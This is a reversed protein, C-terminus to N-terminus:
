LQRLLLARAHKNIAKNTPLSNILCKVAKCRSDRHSCTHVARASCVPSRQVTCLRLRLVLLRYPESSRAAELEEILAESRQVAVVERRRLACAVAGSELPCEPHNVPKPRTWPTHTRRQEM